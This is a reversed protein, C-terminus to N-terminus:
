ANYNLSDHIVEQRQGQNDVDISTMKNKIEDQRRQLKVFEDARNERWQKNKNETLAQQLAEYEKEQQAIAAQRQQIRAQKEAQGNAQHTLVQRRVEAPFDYNQTVQM